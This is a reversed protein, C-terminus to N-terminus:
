QGRHQWPERRYAEPVVPRRRTYTRDGWQDISTVLNMDWPAQFRRARLARKKAARANTAKRWHEPM